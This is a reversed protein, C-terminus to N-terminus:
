EDLRPRNVKRWVEGRGTVPNRYYEYSIHGRGGYRQKRRREHPAKVHQPDQPTAKDKLRYNHSRRRADRHTRLTARKANRDDWGRHGVPRHAKGCGPRPEWDWGIRGATTRQWALDDYKSQIEDWKSPAGLARPDEYGARVMLECYIIWNDYSGDNNWRQIAARLRDDM